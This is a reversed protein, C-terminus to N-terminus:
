RSKGRRKLHKIAGYVCFVLLRIAIVTCAVMAMVRLANFFIENLEM